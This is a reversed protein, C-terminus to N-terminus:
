PMISPIDDTKKSKFDRIQKLVQIKEDIQHAYSMNPVGGGNYSGWIALWNTPGHMVKWKELDKIAISAAYDMHTILEVLILNRTLDNVPQDEEKLLYDLHKHWYGGSPDSINFPVVKKGVFSEQWMIAAMSYGMNFEDGYAYAKKLLVKQQLTLVNYSIKPEVGLVVSLFLLFLLLNKIRKM